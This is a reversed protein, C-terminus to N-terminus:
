LKRRRYQLLVAGGFLGLGILDQMLSPYVLILGSVILLGRELYNTRGLLWGTLGGALASLGVLASLATWLINDWAGKLLLGIGDPHLTFMLPVLFAPATYKWAMMTTKYASGGTIAAAAFPALATPPSVESLVAYYFIFM